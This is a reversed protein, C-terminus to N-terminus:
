IHSLRACPRLGDLSLKEAILRRKCALIRRKEAVLDDYEQRTRICCRAKLKNFQAIRNNLEVVRARFEDNRTAHGELLWTRERESKSSLVSITTKKHSVGEDVM